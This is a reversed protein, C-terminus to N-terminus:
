AEMISKTIATAITSYEGPKIEAKKRGGMFKKQMETVVGNLDAQTKGVMQKKIYDQLVAIFEMETMTESPEAAPQEPMPIEEQVMEPESAVEKKKTKKSKKVPEPKAESEVPKDMPLETQVSQTAVAMLAEALKEIAKAHNNIAEELM